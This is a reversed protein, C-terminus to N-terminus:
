DIKKIKDLRLPRMQRTILFEAGDKTVIDDVYVEKQRTKGNELFTLKVSKGFVSRDTLSDYLECSVPSYKDSM